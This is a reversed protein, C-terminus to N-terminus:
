CDKLNFKNGKLNISIPIVIMTIGIKTNKFGQFNHFVGNHVKKEDLSLYGMM